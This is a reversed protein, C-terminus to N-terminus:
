TGYLDKLWTDTWTKKNMKNMLNNTKKINLKSLETFIRSVLGKDSVYKASIKELRHSTM